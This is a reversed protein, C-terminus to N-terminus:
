FFTKVISGIVEIISKTLEISGIGISNSHKKVVARHRKSLLKELELLWDARPKAM